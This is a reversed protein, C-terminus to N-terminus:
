ASDASEGGDSRVKRPARTRSRNALPVEAMPPPTPPEVPAAPPSWVHGLITLYGARVLTQIRPTLEVEGEWGRRLSDVNVTVRVRVVPLEEDAAM